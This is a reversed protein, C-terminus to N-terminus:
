RPAALFTVETEEAGTNNVEVDSQFFHGRNGAAVPAAPTFVHPDPLFRGCVRQSRADRGVSVFVHGDPFPSTPDEWPMAYLGVELPAARRVDFVRLGM